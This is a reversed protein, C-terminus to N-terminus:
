GKRIYGRGCKQNTVQQANNAVRCCLGLMHCGFRFRHCGLYCHIFKILHYYGARNLYAGDEFILKYSGKMLYWIKPFNTGLDTSHYLLEFYFSIFIKM